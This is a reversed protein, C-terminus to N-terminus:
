TLTGNQFFRRVAAAIEARAGSGSRIIDVSVLSTHIQGRNPLHHV